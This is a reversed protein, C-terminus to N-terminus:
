KRAKGLKQNYAQLTRRVQPTVDVSQRDPYLDKTRVYPDIAEQKPRHAYFLMNLFLTANIADNAGIRPALMLFDLDSDIKNERAGSGVILVNEIGYNLPNNSTHGAHRFAWETYASMVNELGSSVRETIKGHKDFIPISWRYIKPGRYEVKLGNEVLGKSFHEGM